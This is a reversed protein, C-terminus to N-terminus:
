CSMSSLIEPRHKTWILVFELYLIKSERAKLKHRKLAYLVAPEKLIHKYFDYDPDGPLLKKNKLYLETESNETIHVELDTKSEPDASMKTKFTKFRIQEISNTNPDLLVDLLPKYKAYLPDDPQLPKRDLM